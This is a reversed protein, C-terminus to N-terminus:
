LTAVALVKEIEPTMYNGLIGIFKARDFNELINESDPSVNIHHHETITDVSIGIPLGMLRILYGLNNEACFFL